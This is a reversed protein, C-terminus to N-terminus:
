SLWRIAAALAGVTFAAFAVFGWTLGTPPLEPFGDYDNGLPARM